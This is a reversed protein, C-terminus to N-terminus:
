GDVTVETALLDGGGAAPSPVLREFAEAPTELSDWNLSMHPREENYFTLFEDLTGFRGRHKEYTQFFREIKGNSQPRGIKCLTHEIDNNHLYREFEHDRDPRDDRRPNVFESGHDTIVELIPVPSDFEEDVSELLEVAQRASSADTEIMDFVRRSADDEVAVCWQGRDNHYWDMHVSVGSYEREFRVWPRKRGQKTPNESVHDYEQLIEHVRNNAISLGDRVRLVHAIVVAGARLRQRLDLVREKLDDPHDAYPRRGPTELHPTEGSERYTKALQQVRRRSIEFQEAVLGTDMDHDVVRECIRTADDQDLKM